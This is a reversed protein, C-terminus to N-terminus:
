LRAQVLQKVNALDERLQRELVENGHLESADLNAKLQHYRARAATEREKLELKKDM